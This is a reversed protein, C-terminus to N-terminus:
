VELITVRRLTDYSRSRGATLRINSTIKHRLGTRVTHSGPKQLPAATTVSRSEGLVRIPPSEPFTVPLSVLSRHFPGPRWRPEVAFSLGADHAYVLARRVDAVDECRFILAPQRDVGKGIVRDTDYDEHGPSLVRGHFDAIVKRSNASM